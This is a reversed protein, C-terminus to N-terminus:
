ISLDISLWYPLVELPQDFCHVVVSLGFTLRGPVPLCSSPSCRSLGAGLLFSLGCAKRAQERKLALSSCFCARSAPTEMTPAIGLLGYVGHSGGLSRWSTIGFGKWRCPGEPTSGTEGLGGAAQERETTPTTVMECALFGLGRPPSPPTAPPGAPPLLSFTPIHLGCEWGSSPRLWGHWFLEGATAASCPLRLSPAGRRGWRGVGHGGGGEEAGPQSCALGGLAVPQSEVCM